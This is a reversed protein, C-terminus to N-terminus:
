GGVRYQINKQAERMELLKTWLIMTISTDDIPLGRGPFKNQYLMNRGHVKEVWLGLGFIDREDRM